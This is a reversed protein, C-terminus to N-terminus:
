TAEIFFSPAFYHALNMRALSLSHSRLEEQNPLPSGDVGDHEKIWHGATLFDNWECSSGDESIPFIREPLKYDPLAAFFKTEVFGAQRLLDDYEAMTHTLTRLDGNTAKKYKNQALAFDYCCVNPLAIHDDRAGMLYKLGLRNEIGIVLKGNKKLTAHIQKLFRAQADPPNSEPRSAGIWELVGICAVYDFRTDFDLDLFDAEVLALNDALGEQRAAARVFSIKEPSPEVGCVLNSATLALSSQGWGAGIDLILDTPKPPITKLYNTRAQATVIRHLWPNNQGFHDKVADRWPKGHEIEATLTKVRGPPADQYTSPKQSHFVQGGQLSHSAGKIKFRIM